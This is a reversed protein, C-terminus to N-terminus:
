RGVGRYDLTLSAGKCGDQNVARDPMTVRPWRARAIGLRGLSTKSAPRLRLGRGSFQSVSFDLNSCAHGPDASPARISRVRVTLSRVTISFANPNTLVLDLVASLGPALPGSPIGRIGFPGPRRPPNHLEVATSPDDLRSRAPDPSHAPTSRSASVDNTARPATSPNVTPGSRPPDRVTARPADTGPADASPPKESHGTPALLSRYIAIGGLLGLLVASAIAVKTRTSASARSRMNM